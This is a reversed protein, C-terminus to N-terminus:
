GAPPVAPLPWDQGESIVARANRRVCQRLQEIDKVAAVGGPLVRVPAAAQPQGNRSLRDMPHAPGYFHLVSHRM